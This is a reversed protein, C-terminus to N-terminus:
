YSFMFVFCSKFVPLGENGLNQMELNSLQCYFFSSKKPSMITFAFDNKEAVFKNDKLFVNCSTQKSMKVFRFLVASHGVNAGSNCFKGTDVYVLMTGCPIQGGM